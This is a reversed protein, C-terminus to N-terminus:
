VSITKNLKDVTVVDVISAEDTSTFVVVANVGDVHVVRNSVRWGSSGASQRPCMLSNTTSDYVVYAVGADTKGTVSM